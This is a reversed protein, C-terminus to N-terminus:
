SRDIRLKARKPIEFEPLGIEKWLDLAKAMIEKPPLSFTGADVKLTADCVIKSGMTSQSTLSRVSPDMNIPFYVDDILVTDRVPNFRANMAWEVHTHDRIDVDDDVVTVRKVPWTAAIMRGVKKSHAPYGPKMAVVAHALLGGFTLDIYLDSVSPEGMEERLAQLMVGANTMSQITTSESPPMQSTYGYFVPDRRHTIATIRVVPRPDVPGMYGAFEGFPGEMATEGLLIEGEIIIEADAPVMLDVTKAKVMAVPEGLLGGAVDMEDAGYPLNAVAALHVAPSAGIVWAIPAVKGKGIWTLMNQHGQRGPALNPIVTTEDRVMTRYVGVNQIGTDYDKTVTNTTIYPGVDKGPTWVPIPLYSLRVDAGTIVVEQCLASEVVKPPIRNRCAKGLTENVRDEEVDLAVAYAASNAGLAGTVLPITTGKVNEFYMGFRQEAPLAQYMWKALAAPEWMRDVPRSIRRLLGHQELASLFDRMTRHTM